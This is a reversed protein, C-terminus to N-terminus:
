KHSVHSMENKHVRTFKKRANRLRLGHPRQSVASIPYFLRCPSRTKSFIHLTLPVQDQSWLTSSIIYNDKIVHPNIYPAYSASIDSRVHIHIHTIRDFLLHIPPQFFSVSITFVVNSKYTNQAKLVSIKKLDNHM